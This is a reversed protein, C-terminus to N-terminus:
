GAWDHQTNAGSLLAVVVPLLVTTWPHRRGRAQRPDSVQALATVLSPITAEM